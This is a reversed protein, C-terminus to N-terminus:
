LMPIRNRLGFGLFPCFDPPVAIQDGSVLAFSQSSCAVAPIDIVIVITGLLVPLMVVCTEQGGPLGTLRVVGIM